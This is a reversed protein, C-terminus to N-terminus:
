EQFSKYLEGLQSVDRPGNIALNSVRAFASDNTARQRPKDDMDMGMREREKEREREEGVPVEEDVEECWRGARLPVRIVM